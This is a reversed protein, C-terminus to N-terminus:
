FRKAPQRHRDLCLPCLGGSSLWKPQHVAQSRMEPEQTNGVRITCHRGFGDQFSVSM